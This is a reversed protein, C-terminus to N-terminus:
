KASNINLKYHNISTKDLSALDEELQINAMDMQINRFGLAERIRLAQGKKM